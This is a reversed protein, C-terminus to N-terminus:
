SSNISVCVTTKVARISAVHFIYIFLNTCNVAIEAYIDPLEGVLFDRLDDFPDGGVPANFALPLIFNCNGVLLGIESDRKCPQLYIPVHQSENSWCQIRKGDM